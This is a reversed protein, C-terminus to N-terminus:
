GQGWDVLCIRLDATIASKEVASLGTDEFTVSLVNTTNTGYFVVKSQGICVALIISDYIAHTKM